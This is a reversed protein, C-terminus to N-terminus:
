AGEGGLGPVSKEVPSHMQRTDGLLLLFSSSLLGPPFHRTKFELAEKKKNKRNGVATFLHHHAQGTM